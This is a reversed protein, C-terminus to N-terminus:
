DEMENIEGIIDAVEDVPLGIINEFSGEYREILKRGIGQIAYSGAKGFCEKTHIYEWIEEDSLDKFYVISVCGFNFIHEKYVIGVGSMVQHKRGSLNKLMQYADKEDKPKGYIKNEFVVITDCGLLISDSYNEQNHIAKMLGLRKVNEMPTLEDKITEDVDAPDIIFSYGAKELLEKRRPSASRLIIQKMSVGEIKAKCKCDFYIIIRFKIDNKM